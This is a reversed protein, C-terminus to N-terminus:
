DRFSLRGQGTRDPAANGKDGCADTEGGGDSLREVKYGQNCILAVLGGHGGIHAAGVTVMTSGPQTLAADIVPLWLRNRRSVLFEQAAPNRYFVRDLLTSLGDADGRIWADRLDRELDRSSPLTGILNRLGALQTQDSSATLLQLQQLPTELYAMPRHHQRAYDSVDDDAGKLTTLNDPHLYALGLVLSALWPRYREFSAPDLGANRMVSAYLDFEGASLMSRISQRRPLLGNRV